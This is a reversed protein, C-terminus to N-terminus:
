ASPFYTSESRTRGDLDDGLWAGFAALPEIHDCIIKIAAAIPVALLLGVGGWLMGWLLLSLTAALPNVQVRQGIFKPVLLNIAALHIVLVGVLLVLLGTGSLKGAGILLPPVLALVVGLYPVMSLMGSLMGIIYFYPVHITAFLISSIVGILLGILVNGILVSRLMAAIQGLSKKVTMQRELAFLRVSARYLYDEWTLLFYTIFPVFSSPFLFESLSGAGGILIKPWDIPHSKSIAQDTPQALIKTSNLVHNVRALLSQFFGDIKASHTPLEAVFDIALDYLLRIAGYLVTLTITILVFASLPRPIRYRALFDVSPALALAVAVGLLTPILVLRGYYCLAILAAAAIVSQTFHLLRPAQSTTAAPETM